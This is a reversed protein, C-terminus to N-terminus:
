ISRMLFERIGSERKIKRNVATRIESEGAMLLLHEKARTLATYLIERTLLKESGEPIIIAVRDYESGQSKHVTGVYATEYDTIRSISVIKYGDTEKFFAYLGNSFQFIIGRDGNFLGNIYDNKTIMIPEGHYFPKYGPNFARKIMGNLSYTGYLGKKSPTLVTFSSFLSFYSEIEKLLTEYELVPKTFGVTAEIKSYETILSAVTSDITPLEITTIEAVDSNLYTISADADGSIVLKAGDMIGKTSRYSHELLTIKNHIKHNVDKYNHLFDGLLAGAEVSPLQDKDGVLILKTGPSLADFLRYMMHIDVMSAEDIIVAETTLQRESNYRPKDRNPSIGLLKHLTFAETPMFEDLESKESNISEIMRKAARGTPAALSINTIGNVILARLISVVTTTKGSGPGGSIILFNSKLSKEVAELREGELPYNMRKELTMKVEDINYGAYDGYNLRQELLDLFKEEYRKIRNIYISDGVILFPERGSGFLRPYSEIIKPVNSVFEAPDFPLNDEPLWQKIDIAIDNLSTRLNGVDYQFQIHLILWKLHLDDDCEYRELLDKTFYIQSWKFGLVKSDSLFRDWSKYAGYLGKLDKSATSYDRNKLFDKLASGYEKKM